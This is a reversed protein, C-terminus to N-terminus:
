KVPNNFTIYSSNGAGLDFFYDFGLKKPQCIETQRVIIKRIDFTLCFNFLLFGSVMATLRYSCSLDPFKNCPITGSQLLTSFQQSAIVAPVPTISPTNCIALSLKPPKM